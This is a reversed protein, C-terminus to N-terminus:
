LRNPGRQPQIPNPGKNSQKRNIMVTTAIVAGILGIGCALGTMGIIILETLGLMPSM